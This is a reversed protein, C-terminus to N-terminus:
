RMHATPTAAVFGTMRAQLWCGIAALSPADGEDAQHSVGLCKQSLRRMRAGGHTMGADDGAAEARRMQLAHASWLALGRGGVPVGSQALQSRVPV